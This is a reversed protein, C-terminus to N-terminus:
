PHNRKNSSLKRLFVVNSFSVLLLGVFLENSGAKIGLAPCSPCFMASGHPVRGGSSKLIIRTVIPRIPTIRTAAGRAVSTKVSAWSQRGQLSGLMLPHLLM